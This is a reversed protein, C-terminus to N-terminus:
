FICIRVQYMSYMAPEICALLYLKL